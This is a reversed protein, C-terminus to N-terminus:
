LRLKGYRYQFTGKLILLWTSIAMRLLVNSARDQEEWYQLLILWDHEMIRQCYLTPPNQDCLGVLWRGKPMQVWMGSACHTVCCGVLGGGECVIGGQDVIKRAFHHAMVGVVDRCCVQGLVPSACFPIWTKFGFNLHMWYKCVNFFCDPIVESGCPKWSPHYQRERRFDQWFYTM